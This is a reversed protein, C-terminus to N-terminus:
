WAFPPPATFTPQATPPHEGGCATLQQRGCGSEEGVGTSSHGVLALEVWETIKCSSLVSAEIGFNGCLAATQPGTM